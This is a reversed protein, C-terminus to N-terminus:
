RTTFIRCPGTTSAPLYHVLGMTNHITVSQPALELARAAHTIAEAHRQLASLFFLAYWQHGTAHTPSLEIARLFEWEAGGWDRDEALLGVGLATHSEELSSDLELAQRAMVKATAYQQKMPVVGYVGRLLYSEALRAYARDYEPDMEVACQFHSIGRDVGEGRRILETIGRQYFRHAQPSGTGELQLPQDHSENVELGLTAAVCSVVKAEVEFLHRIGRAYKESWLLQGTAADVLSVDLTFNEGVKKV